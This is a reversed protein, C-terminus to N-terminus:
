WIYKDNRGRRKRDVGSFGAMSIECEITAQASQDRGGGGRRGERPGNVTCIVKTNGMEFYSSGDSSQQTQIQGHIRRLENWRRGDVRLGALGYTSTDLPMTRKAANKQKLRAFAAVCRQSDDVFVCTSNRFHTVHGPKLEHYKRTEPLLTM